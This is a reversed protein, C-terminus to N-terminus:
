LKYNASRGSARTSLNRWLYRRFGFELTYSQMIGPYEIMNLISPNYYSFGINLENKRTLKRCYHIFYIDGDSGTDISNLFGDALSISDSVQKRLNQNDINDTLTDIQQASLYQFSILLVVLMKLFVTKKFKMTNM